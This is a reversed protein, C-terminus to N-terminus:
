MEMGAPDMVPRVELAGSCGGPWRAAIEVAREASDVDVLVYGALHERAPVYPGETTVPRGGVLRVVKTTAPHALAEGRILEGSGALEGMLAGVGVAAEGTTEPANYILLMYKM